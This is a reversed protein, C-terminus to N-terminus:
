VPHPTGTIVSNFHIVETFLRDGFISVNLVILTPVEVYANPPTPPVCPEDRLVFLIRQDCVCDRGVEWDRLLLFSDERAAPLNLGDQGPFSCPCPPPPPRRLATRVFWTNAHGEDSLPTPSTTTSGRQTDTIPLRACPGPHFGGRGRLTCRISPAPDPWGALWGELSLPTVGQNQASGKVKRNADLNHSFM